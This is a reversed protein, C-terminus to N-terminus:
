RNAVIVSCIKESYFISHLFKKGSNFDFAHICREVSSFLKKIKSWDILLVKKLEMKCLKLRM